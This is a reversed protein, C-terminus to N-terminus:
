SRRGLFWGIVGGLLTVGAAIGVVAMFNEGFWSLLGGGATSTMGMIIAFAALGMATIIGIALGGVLGSGAGDYAEAMMMLGGAGAGVEAAAEGTPSEFLDGGGAAPADIATQQAVTESGYVDQLLDSGLSTDDGERTLDLLGGSGSASKGSEDGPDVLATPSNTVRTVASPDSDDTEETEFISIGTSEKEDKLPMGTGSASALSIPELEGSEALPIVDLEDGHGSMLDVQEKKFMLKDRDRFEQLQGNKAMDRVEDPSKGLKAAAEELSYFIKEM